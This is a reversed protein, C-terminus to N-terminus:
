RFCSGHRYDRETGLFIEVYQEFNESIDAQVIASNLIREPNTFKHVSAILPDSPVFSQENTM